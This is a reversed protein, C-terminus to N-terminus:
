KILKVFKWFLSSFRKSSLKRGLNEEIGTMQERILVHGFPRTTARSANTLLYERFHFHICKGSKKKLVMALSLRANRKTHADCFCSTAGLGSCTIKYRSKMIRYILSSTTRSFCWLEALHFIANSILIFKCLWDSEHCWTYYYFWRHLYWFLKFHMKMNEIFDFVKM